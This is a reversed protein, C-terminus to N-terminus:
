RLPAFSTCQVPASVISTAYPIEVQLGLADVGNVRDDLAELVAGRAANGERGYV